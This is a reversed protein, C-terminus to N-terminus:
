EPVKIYASLILAGGLGIGIGILTGGYILRKCAKSM